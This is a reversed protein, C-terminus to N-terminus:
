KQAMGALAVGVNVTFGSTQPNGDKEVPEVARSHLLAWSAPKIDGKNAAVKAAKVVTRAM